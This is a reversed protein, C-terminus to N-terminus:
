KKRMWNSFMLQRDYKVKDEKSEIKEEEFKVSRSKKKNWLLIGLVTLIIVIVFVVLGVIWFLIAEM